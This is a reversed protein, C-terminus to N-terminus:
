QVTTKGSFNRSTFIHSQLDDPTQYSVTGYSASDLWFGYLLFLEEDEVIRYITIGTTQDTTQYSSQIQLDFVMGYVSKFSYVTDAGLCM